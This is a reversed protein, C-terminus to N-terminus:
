CAMRLKKSPNPSNHLRFRTAFLEPPQTWGRRTGKNTVMLDWLARKEFRVTTARGLVPFGHAEAAAMRENKWRAWALDITGDLDLYMQGWEDSVDSADIADALAVRDYTELCSQLFAALTPYPLGNPSRQLNTPKRCDIHFYKDPFLTFYFNIGVSKFRPFTHALCEPQAYPWPLVRMYTGDDVRTHIQAEARDLLDAPVAIWWDDRIRGAGYYILASVGCFCNTIGVRELDRSLWPRWPATDAVLRWSITPSSPSTTTWRRPAAFTM